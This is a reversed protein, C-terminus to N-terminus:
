RRKTSRSLSTATSTRCPSAGNIQPVPFSFLLPSTPNVSQHLAVPLPVPLQQKIRDACSTVTDGNSYYNQESANHVEQVDDIDEVDDEDVLVAPPRRLPAIAGQRNM